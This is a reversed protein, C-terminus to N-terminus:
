EPAGLFFLDIFKPFTEMSFLYLKLFFTISGTEQSNLEMAILGSTVDM